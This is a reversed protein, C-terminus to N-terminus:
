RSVARTYKDLIDDVPNIVMEEVGEYSFVQLKVGYTGLEIVIVDKAEIEAFENRVSEVYDALMSFAPDKRIISARERFQELVLGSGDLNPDWWNKVLNGPDRYRLKIARQAAMVIAGEWCTKLITRNVERAFASIREARELM